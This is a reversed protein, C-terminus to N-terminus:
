LVNVNAVASIVKDVTAGVDIDLLHKEAPKATVTARQAQVTRTVTKYLTRTRVATRVATATPAAPCDPAYDESADDAIAHSPARSKSAKAINARSAAKRNQVARSASTSSSSSGSSSRSSSSSKVVKGVNRQGGSRGRASGTYVPASWQSATTGTAAVKVGNGFSVSNGGGQVAQNGDGQLPNSNNDGQLVNNGDGQVVSVRNNDGSTDVITGNPAYNKAMVQNTQAGPSLINLAPQNVAVLPASILSSKTNNNLANIPANVLPAVAAALANGSLLSTLADARKVLPLPLGALTSRSGSSSGVAPVAALVPLASDAVGTGTSPSSFTPATNDALDSPAVVALIPAVTDAVDLPLARRAVRVNKHGHSPAAVALSATAVIAALYLPHSLM